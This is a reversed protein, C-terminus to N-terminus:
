VKGGASSAQEDSLVQWFFLAMSPSAVVVVESPM